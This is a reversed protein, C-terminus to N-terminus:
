LLDRFKVQTFGIYKDWEKYHYCYHSQSRYKHISIRMRNPHWIEIKWMSSSSPVSAHIADVVSKLIELVPLYKYKNTRGVVTPMNFIHHLLLLLPIMGKTSM